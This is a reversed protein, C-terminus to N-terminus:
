NSMYKKPSIKKLFIICLQLSPTITAKSAQPKPHLLDVYDHLQVATVVQMILKRTQM